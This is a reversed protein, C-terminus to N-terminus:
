TPKQCIHLVADGGEPKWNEKIVFGASGMEAQLEVNTFHELHPFIRIASGIPLLHRLFGRMDGLCVTSTVLYGGPKLLRFADALARRHDPLLHLINMGMVVDYAADPSQWDELTSVAFDANDQGEAKGKAIDIMKYSYDIGTIHAVHPAHILATSGTGCGFELVKMDPTFLAQTQELKYAYSAQDAIKQRAYMPAMFNWLGQSRTM